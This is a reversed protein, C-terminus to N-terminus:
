INPTKLNIVVNTNAFSESCYSNEKMVKYLQRLSEILGSGVSKNQTQYSDCLWAM